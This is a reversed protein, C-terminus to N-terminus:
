TRKQIPRQKYRQKNRQTFTDKNADTHVNQTYTHTNTQRQKIPRGDLYRQTDHAHKHIVTNILTHRQTDRQTHKWTDRRTKRNTKGYTNKFTNTIVHRQSTEPLILCVQDLILLFHEWFRQFNISFDTWFADQSRSRSWPRIQMFRPDGFGRFDM